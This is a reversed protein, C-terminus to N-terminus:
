LLCDLRVSRMDPDSRLASVLKDPDYGEGHNVFFTVDTGGSGFSCQYEHRLVRAGQAELLGRLEAISADRTMVISVKGEERQHQHQEVSRLVWLSILGLLTAFAAVAFMGAGSALGIASVLWLGAATTLGHVTPGSRLIAGGAIFGAGSVVESAIRSADVRVVTEDDFGQHDVFAHSIVMFTASAMAVVMHTRLGAPRRHLDREYGVLAGLAGAIVIRLFLEFPLDMEGTKRNAEVGRLASRESSPTLVFAESARAM